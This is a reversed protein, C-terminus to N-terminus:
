TSSTELPEPVPRRVPVNLGSSCLKEPDTGPTPELADFDGGRFEVGRITVSLSKGDNRISTPEEGSRDRYRAPYMVLM